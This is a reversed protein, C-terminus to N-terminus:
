FHLSFFFFFAALVRNYFRTFRFECPYLRVFILFESNWNSKKIKGNKQTSKKENKFTTNKDTKNKNDIEECNIGYLHSRHVIRTAFSEDSTCNFHSHLTKITQM